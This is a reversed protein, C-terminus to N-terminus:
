NSNMIASKITNIEKITLSKKIVLMVATDNEHIMFSSNGIFDHLYHALQILGAKAM